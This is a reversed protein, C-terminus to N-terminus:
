LKECMLLQIYPANTGEVSSSGELPPTTEISHQRPYSGGEAIGGGNGGVNNNVYKHAHNGTPRNEKDKLATGVSEALTGNENLGVIYRGQASKFPQWGAPCEKANVIIITQNFKKIENNTSNLQETLETFQDPKLENRWPITIQSNSDNIQIITVHGDKDTNERDCSLYASTEYPMTIMDENVTPLKEKEISEVSKKVPKWSCNIGPSPNHTLIADSKSANNAVIGFNNTHMADRNFNFKLKKGQWEKCTKYAGYASPAINEIYSQYSSAKASYKNSADCYTSAISEVSNNSTSANASLVGYSAGGSFSQGKSKSEQYESCFNRAAQEVASEGQIITNKTKSMAILEECEGAISISPLLAVLAFLLVKM